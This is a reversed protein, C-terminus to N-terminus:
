LPILVREFDAPSPVFSVFPSFWGCKVLIKEVKESCIAGKFSPRTSFWGKFLFSAYDWVGYHDDSTDLECELTERTVPVPCQYLKVNDMPYHPWLRRRFLLNMDYFKNADLDVFGIHYAHSGTFIKTLKGSLKDPNSIIAISVM